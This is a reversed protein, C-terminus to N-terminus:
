TLPETGQQRQVCANFIQDHIEDVSTTAPQIYVQKAIDLLDRRGQSDKYIKKINQEFAQWDDGETQRIQQIEYATGAQYACSTINHRELETAQTSAAFVSAVIVIIKHQM